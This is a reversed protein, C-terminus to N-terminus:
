RGFRADAHVRSRGPTDDRRLPRDHVRFFFNFRDRALVLKRLTITLIRLVTLTLLGAAFALVLVVLCGHVGVVVVGVRRRLPNCLRVARTTWSSVHATRRSQQRQECSSPASASGQGM